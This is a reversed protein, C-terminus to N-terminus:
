CEERPPRIYGSSSPCAPYRPEAQTKQRNESRAGDEKDTARDVVPGYSSAHTLSSVPEPLIKRPVPLILMLIAWSPLFLSSQIALTSLACREDQVYRM